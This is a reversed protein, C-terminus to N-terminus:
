VFKDKWLDSLFKQWPITLIKEVSTSVPDQSVIILKQFVGEEKLYTNVYADLEEEPYESLYVAPLGGYRLYRNLDFRPQKQWNNDSSPRKELLM